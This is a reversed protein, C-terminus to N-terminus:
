RENGEKLKKKKQIKIGIDKNFSKKNNIKEEVNEKTEINNYKHQDEIKLDIAKNFIKLDIEKRADSTSSSGFKIIEDAMKLAKPNLKGLEEIKKDYNNIEEYYGTKDYVDAFYLDRNINEKNAKLEAIRSVLEKTEKLKEVNVNEFYLDLKKKMLYVEIEPKIERDIFQFAKPNEEIIELIFKKDNRIQNNVFVLVEPNEKILELVFKKDKKLDENIYRYSCSDKKIAAIVFNKSRKLDGSAYGVISSDIEMEKLIFDNNNKLEYGMQSYIITMMENKKIIGLENAKYKEEVNNILGKFLEEDNKWRNSIKELYNPNELIRKIIKEKEKESHIINDVIKKFKKLM